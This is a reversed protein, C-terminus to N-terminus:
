NPWYIWQSRSPRGAKSRRCPPLNERKAVADMNARPGV